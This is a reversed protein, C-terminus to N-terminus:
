HTYWQMPWKTIAIVMPSSKITELL